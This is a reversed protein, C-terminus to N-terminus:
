GDSVPEHEVDFVQPEDELLDLNRLVMRRRRAGGARRAARQESRSRILYVRLRRGKATRRRCLERHPEPGDVPAVVVENWDGILMQKPRRVLEERAQRSRNEAGGLGP